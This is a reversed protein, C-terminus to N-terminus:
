GHRLDIVTAAPYKEIGVFGDLVAVIKGADVVVTSAGRAAQGPRDLLAGAQVLTVAAAGKALLFLAAALAARSPITM